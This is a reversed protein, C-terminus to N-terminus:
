NSLQTWSKAVEHVTAWWAGRDMPDELCSYQTAMGKELPDEGSLFRVWTEQMAPLNKVTQAVLGPTLREWYPEPGRIGFSTDCVCDNFYKKAFM